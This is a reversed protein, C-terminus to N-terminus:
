EQVGKVILKVLAWYPWSLLSPAFLYVCRVANGWGSVDDWSGLASAATVAAAAYVGWLWWLVVCIM